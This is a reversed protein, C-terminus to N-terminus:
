FYCLCAQHSHQGAIMYPTSALVTSVAENDSSPSTKAVQQTENTSLKTSTSRIFADKYTQTSRLKALEQKAVDFSQYPGILCRDGKMEPKLWISKSVQKALHAPVYRLSGSKVFGCQIWFSQDSEDPQTNGWLGEGIPCESELVPFPLQSKSASDCVFVDKSAQASATVSVFLVVFLAFASSAKKWM